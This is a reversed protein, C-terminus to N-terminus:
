RATIHKFEMVHKQTTEDMSVSVEYSHRISAGYTNDADFTGNFTYKCEDESGIVADRDIKQFVASSPSRLGDKIAQEVSQLAANLSCPDSQCGSVALFVLMAFPKMM